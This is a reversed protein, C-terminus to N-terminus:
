RQTIPTTDVDFQAFPLPSYLAFSSWDDVKLTMIAIWGVALAVLTVIVLAMRANGLIRFAQDTDDARRLILTLAGIVIAALLVFVLPSPSMSVTGCRPEIDTPTGDAGLFSTGDSALAGSCSQHVGRLFTGLVAAAVVGWIVLSRIGVVLAAGPLLKPDTDTDTSSDTTL